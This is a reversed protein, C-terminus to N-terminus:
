LDAPRRAETHSFYDRTILESLHPLASGITDLLAELSGRRGESDEDCLQAIEALRVETLLSLVLRQEPTRVNADLDRPLADVHEVLAAVQFGVSRPNTEDLILLDIVPPLMPTTLYRSRYTMLSDALELLLVLSGDEEPNGRALLSHLLDVLHQARELRRGMDLFRWGHNRTMNELEMGSFAALTRISEDLSELVDGLELPHASSQSERPRELIKANNLHSLTRWADLSLRDRVLSATRHFHSLTERLGYALNPDFMLAALQTELGRMPDDDAAASPPALQSKEFLVFLVRQMATINDLSSSDETLRRVVSRLVRIIDESREAYRGLWFLNDAARSPLDKGTRRPKVYSLPSRLLTFSSSVPEDSLVWTDKTGDGRRLAIARADRSKSVRTLGGPMVVYGNDKTAAVFVRLTMPRPELGAGTWVPTTSLSVLEQGVYADGRANIQDIIARRETPSLSAGRVGSTAHSLLTRRKFASDIALRDINMSVYNRVQEDGCWWTSTNPIELDEGLLHRCLAPMFALMAKTEALGSGIANAVTVNGARTAQLLGAVGLMSSARLELPDCDDGDIRRLILDVPKLGDVSKLFVRNDRVTLDGGEAMTYGLYRALYAHAFYGEGEPGQTLLVIRPNERNTRSVLSDHMSQFYNALRVVHFDRFQEPLCRSLVVRNELAFGVGSPAQTRDALVWWRGNPARGLDVAYIHLYVDNRPRIGHCPRLFQPNGLVVAPPLLGDRLLTQPGYLDALIANLVQARQIIGAELARWESADIVLPVFDLNWPRGAYGGSGGSGVDATYTLGNEHLLREALRWRKGLESESMSELGDIFQRWHPRLCGDASVMEDYVGPLPTYTDHLRGARLVESAQDIKSM